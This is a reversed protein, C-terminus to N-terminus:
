DPGLEARIKEALAKTVDAATKELPDGTRAGAAFAHGGGGFQTAVEHVTIRGKSRLSVRTLNKELESFFAVIEVSKISRPVSIYEETEERQVGFSELDKKSLMFWAIRGGCEVHLNSMLHGLLKVSAASNSEWFVSHAENPNAGKEVLWAAWKLTRETTNTFRFHGTDYSLAAFLARVILPDSFDDGEERLFEAIMEGVAASSLEIASPGDFNDEEEIHHDIVAVPLGSAALAHRFKGIRKPKGTDIVIVADFHDAWDEHASVEDLTRVLGEPDYPAVFSPYTGEVAATAKKGRSRLFQSLAVCALLGDGDPGVHTLLLFSSHGAIFERVAGFLDTGTENEYNM